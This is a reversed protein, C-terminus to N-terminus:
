ALVWGRRFWLLAILALLPTLWYGAERWHQGRGRRRRPPGARDLRRAVAAVDSRTSADDRDVTPMSRGRRM